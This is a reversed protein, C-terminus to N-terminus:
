ILKSRWVEIKRSRGTKRNSYVLRGAQEIWGEEAARRMLAGMMNEKGKPPTFFAYVDDSTLEAKQRAIHHISTLAKSQTIPPLSEWIQRHGKRRAERAGAPDMLPQPAPVAPQSFAYTFTAM